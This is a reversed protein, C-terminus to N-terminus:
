TRLQNARAPQRGGTGGGGADPQVAGSGARAQGGRHGVPHPRLAPEAHGGGGHRFPRRLAGAMAGLASAADYAATHGHASRGTGGAGPPALVGPACYANIRDHMLLTAQLGTDPAGDYHRIALDVGGSALNSLTTSASIRLTIGPHSDVFRPMRSSFWKAAFTPPMSICLEQDGSHRVANSVRRITELAPRIEQWYSQAAPTPEVARVKRVFLTVGLWEELRQIQQGVAGPTVSLADAALAFSGQRMAADFAVLAKLPPTRDMTCNKEILAYIYDNTALAASVSL